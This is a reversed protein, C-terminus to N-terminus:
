QKVTRNSQQALIADAVKSSDPKYAGHQVQTQFAAVRDLRVEPVNALQSTLQTAEHHRGSLQVTDGAAVGKAGPDFTLATKVGGTKTNEVQTNQLETAQIRPDIKM